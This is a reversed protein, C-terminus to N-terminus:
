HKGEEAGFLKGMFALFGRDERLSEKKLRYESDGVHSLVSRGVSRIRGAIDLSLARIMAAAGGPYERHYQDLDESSLKLLKSERSARVTASAPGPEILCYEGVWKGEDILVLHLTQGPGTIEVSLQGEWLLYLSDSHEGMKLLQEGEAIELPSLRPLLHELETSDMKELLPTFRKKFETSTITM